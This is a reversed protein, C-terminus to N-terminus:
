GLGLYRIIPDKPGKPSSGLRDYGQKTTDEKRRVPNENRTINLNHKTRVTPWSLNRKKDAPGWLAYLNRNHAEHMLEPDLYPRVTYRLVSETICDSEQVM